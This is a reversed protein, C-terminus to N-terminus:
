KPARESRCSKGSRWDDWFFGCPGCGSLSVGLLALLVFVAAQKGMRLGVGRSYRM